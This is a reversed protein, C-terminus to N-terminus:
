ARKEWPHFGHERRKKAVKNMWHAWVMMPYHMAGETSLMRRGPAIHYIGEFQTGWAEVRMAVTERMQAPHFAGSPSFTRVAVEVNEAPLGGWKLMSLLFQRLDEALQKSM